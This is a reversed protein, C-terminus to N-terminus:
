VSSNASLLRADFRSRAILARLLLFYISHKTFPLEDPKLTGSVYAPLDPIRAGGESCIGCQPIKQKHWKVNVNQM